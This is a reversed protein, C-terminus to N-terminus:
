ACPCTGTARSIACNEAPPESNSSTSIQISKIERQLAPPNTIGAQVLIRAVKANNLTIGPCNYDALMALALARTAQYANMDFAHARGILACGAVIAAANRTLM